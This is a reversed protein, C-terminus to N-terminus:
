LKKHNGQGQYIFFTSVKSGTLKSSSVVCVSFTRVYVHIMIFSELAFKFDIELIFM